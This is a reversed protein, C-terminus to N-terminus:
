TEHLSCCCPKIPKLIVLIRSLCKSMLAIIFEAKIVRVFTLQHIGACDQTTPM